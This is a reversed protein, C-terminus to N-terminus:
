TGHRMLTTLEKSMALRWHPERLAQGVCTPEATSPLPHKTTTNVQKPKYINNMSRTVM